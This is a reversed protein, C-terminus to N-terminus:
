YRSGSPMASGPYRIANIGAKEDAYGNRLFSSAPFGRILTYGDLQNRSFAGNSVGSVNDLAERANTVGQDQIVKQPVVVVDQAVSSIPLDAKGGTRNGTTVYNKIGEADPQQGITVGGPSPATVPVTGLNVGGGPPAEPTPPPAVQARSTGAILSAAAVLAM